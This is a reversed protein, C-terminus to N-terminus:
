DKVASFAVIAVAADIQRGSAAVWSAIATSPRAWRLSSIGLLQGPSRVRAAGADPCYFCSNSWTNNSGISPFKSSCRV